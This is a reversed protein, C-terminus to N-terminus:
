RGSWQSAALKSIAMEKRQYRSGTGLAAARGVASDLRYVPHLSSRVKSNIEKLAKKEDVRPHFNSFEAAESILLLASDFTTDHLLSAQFKSVTLLAIKLRRIPRHMSLPCIAKASHANRGSKLLM